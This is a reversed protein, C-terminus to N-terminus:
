SSRGVASSPVAEATPLAPLQTPRILLVPAHAQQLIGTAASGLVLRALGGRGHTAMAFLDVHEEEGIRVITDAVPRGLEVRCSVAGLGPKLRAAIPVLYDQAEAHLEEPDLMLLEGGDMLVYPPWEVVQVLLLEAGLRVAWAGVPELATEALESGDLPVLVKLRADIPWSASAHPPVLLVPVEAHRLVEDAVSGYLVRGPGSRGHTGMVILDAQSEAAEALIEHAALGLRHSREVPLGRARLAGTVRKLYDDADSLSDSDDAGVPPRSARVLVLCAGSAQALRETYPLAQEALPSGDLPVLITTAM